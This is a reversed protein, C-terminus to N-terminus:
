RLVEAVFAADVYGGLTFNNEVQGLGDIEYVVYKNPSGTFVTNHTFFYLCRGNDLLGNFFPTPNASDYAEELEDLHQQFEKTMFAFAPEDRLYTPIKKPYGEDVYRYDSSSYRVYSDGKFLYTTRDGPSVWAADVGDSFINKQRGWDDKIEAVETWRTSENYSVYCKQSWFYATGDAGIFGSKLEKFDTKNFPIGSYILDLPQPPSWNETNLNFSIFKRDQIFILNDEHVFITDFTDFGERKYATPIYWMGDDGTQPYGPDPNEYSDKSYRLYRFNGQADPREFLFTEEKWVYALAVNSLGCWKDSIRRPPYTVTEGPYSQTDYQVFWEGSFVYTVGDRGVFAADITERDYIPNRSRGWVDAIAFSRELEVDYYQTGAFVYSREDTGQLM